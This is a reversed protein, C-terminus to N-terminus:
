NKLVPAVSHNVTRKFDLSKSGHTHIQGEEHKPQRSIIQINGNMACDFLTM